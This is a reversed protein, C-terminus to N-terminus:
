SCSSRGMVLGGPASCASRAVPVVEGSTIMEHVILLEPEAAGFPMVGVIRGGPWPPHRGESPTPDLVTDRAEVRGHDLREIMAQVAREAMLAADQRVTTLDILSLRAIESDDYGAVSPAHAIRRQQLTGAQPPSCRASAGPRPGPAAGRSTM